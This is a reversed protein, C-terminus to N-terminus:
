PPAIRDIVQLQGDNLRVVIGEGSAPWVRVLATINVQHTVVVLVGPGRWELVAKRAAATRADALHRKAYFSNFFERSQIAQDPFALEATETTRCWQSSWVATVAIGRERLQQGIQQAQRRGADNLLRQTSCNGLAFEAPDGSGPATAHRYLVIDGDNIAEPASQEAAAVGTLSSALALLLGNLWLKLRARTRALHSERM